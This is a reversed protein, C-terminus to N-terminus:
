GINKHAFYIIIISIVPNENEKSNIATILTILRIQARQLESVFQM